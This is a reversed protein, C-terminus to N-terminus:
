ITAFVNFIRWNISKALDDFQSHICFRIEQFFHNEFAPFQAAKQSFFCNSLTAVDFFTSL